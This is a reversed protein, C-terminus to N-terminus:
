ESINVSSRTVRAVSYIMETTGIYKFVTCFSIWVALSTKRTVPRCMQNQLDDFYDINGNRKPRSKKLLPRESGVSEYSEQRSCAAKSSTPLDTPFQDLAELALSNRSGTEEITKEGTNEEEDLSGTGSDTFNSAEKDNGFILTVEGADEETISNFSPVNYHASSEDLSRFDVPLYPTDKIMMTELDEKLQTFSPRLEPSENWCQLM